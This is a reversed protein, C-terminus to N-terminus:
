KQQKRKIVVKNRNDYLLLGTAVGTNLLPILSLFILFFMVILDDLTLDSHKLSDKVTGVVWCVCYVASLIYVLVGIILLLCNM